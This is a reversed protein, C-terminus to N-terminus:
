TFGPDPPIPKYYRTKAIHQELLTKRYLRADENTLDDLPEHEAEDEDYLADFIWHNLDHGHEDENEHEDEDGDVDEM